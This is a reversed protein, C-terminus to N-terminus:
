GDARVDLSARGRGGRHGVGPRIARRSGLDWSAAEALPVPFITKYGHIVDYGFLMPIKLRSNEVALQQAQRTAAAGNVNLMSGVQGSRVQQYAEAQAGQTPPPGTVDFPSSYQNLQGIKEEITMQAVLADIKKETAPNVLTQAVPAGAVPAQEVPRGCAFSVALLSAAVLVRAM